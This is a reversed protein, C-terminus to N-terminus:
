FTASLFDNEETHVNVRDTKKGEQLKQSFNSIVERLESKNCFVILISLKSGIQIKTCDRCGLSCFGFTNFM